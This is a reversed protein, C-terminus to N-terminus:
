DVASNEFADLENGRSILNGLIDDKEAERISQISLRGMDFIRDVMKNVLLDIEREMFHLEILDKVKLEYAAGAHKTEIPTFMKSSNLFVIAPRFNLAFFSSIIFNTLMPVMSALLSHGLGVLGTENKKPDVALTLRFEFFSNRLKELVNGKNNALLNDESVGALGTLLPLLYFKEYRYKDIESLFAIENEWRFYLQKEILRSYFEKIWMEPKKALFSASYYEQVSKHIFRYEEGDRLILCTIKVIDSLFNDPNEKFKNELLARKTFKYIDEHGFSSEKSEKAIISITEFVHRYQIDDLKCSRERKYGPKTGDHRQLLAQFLSDYFDCLQTPLQHYSKYSLILLTVMLPTVLLEKLRASHGDVREILNTALQGDKTLKRIVKKYEDGRLDDLKVVRFHTSMQISNNPRSTVIIRLNEKSAALDQIETSLRQKEDEPIEDFADLLLLVKGSEALADFLNDDVTLGLNQFDIFLREKLSQNKQIRRLEVFIPICQAKRLEFACLHRLFISKGQGAIGIIVLNDETGFDKLEAIKIRNDKIVVHSDCYFSELDIAKDVQWITKVKRIKYIQKYLTEIKSETDWQKIKATTASSLKKYVDTILQKFIEKGAFAAAVGVTPM